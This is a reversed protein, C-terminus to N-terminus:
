ALLGNFTINQYTGPTRLRGVHFQAPAGGPLVRAAQAAVARHERVPQLADGLRLAAADDVQPPLM